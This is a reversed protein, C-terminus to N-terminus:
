MSEDHTGRKSEAEISATAQDIWRVAVELSKVVRHINSKPFEQNSMHSHM